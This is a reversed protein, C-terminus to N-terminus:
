DIKDIYPLVYNNLYERCDTKVMILLRESKKDKCEELMNVVKKYTSLYRATHSCIWELHRLYKDRDKKASLFDRKFCEPPSQNMDKFEAVCDYIKASAYETSIKQAETFISRILSKVSFGASSAVGRQKSALIDKTEDGNEDSMKIWATSDGWDYTIWARTLNWKGVLMRQEHKKNVISIAYKGNGHPIVRHSATCIYDYESQDDDISLDVITMSAGNCKIGMIYENLLEM